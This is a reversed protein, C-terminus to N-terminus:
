DGLSDNWSLCEASFEITIWEKLSEDHVGLTFLRPPIGAM